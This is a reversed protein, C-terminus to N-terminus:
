VCVCMCVSLYRYVSCYSSPPGAPGTCCAPRRELNTHSSEREREPSALASPARVQPAVERGVCVCMNMAIDSESCAELLRNAPDLFLYPRKQLSYLPRNQRWSTSSVPLVVVAAPSTCISM